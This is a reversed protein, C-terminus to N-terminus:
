LATCDRVKLTSLLLFYCSSLLQHSLRGNPWLLCPGLLPPPAATGREMPSSPGDLVIDGSGLGVEMGLPMKIWGITQGCYVLTVSVCSLCVPYVHCWEAAYPSSNSTVTAWFHSHWAPLLYSMPILHHLLLLSMLHCATRFALQLSELPVTVLIMHAYILFWNVM